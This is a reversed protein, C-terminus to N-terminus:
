WELQGSTWLQASYSPPKIQAKQNRHAAKVEFSSRKGSVNLLMSNNFIILKQVTNLNLHETVVSEKMANRSVEYNFLYASVRAFTNHECVNHLM